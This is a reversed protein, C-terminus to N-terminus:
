IREHVEELQTISRRKSAAAQASFARDGGRRGVELITASAAHDLFATKCARPCDRKRGIPEVTLVTGALFQPTKKTASM